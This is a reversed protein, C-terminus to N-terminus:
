TNEESKQIYEEVTKDSISFLQKYSMLLEKSSPRPLKALIKDVDLGGGIQEPRAFIKLEISEKLYPTESLQMFFRELFYRRELV